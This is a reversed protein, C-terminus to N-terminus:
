ASLDYSRESWPGFEANNLSSSAAHDAPAVCSMAIRLLESQRTAGTKAFLARVHTRVTNLSLNLTASVEEVNMGNFLFKLVRLEAATAGFTSAFMEESLAEDVNRIFIAVAGVDSGNAALRGPLVWATISRENLRVLSVAVGHSSADDFNGHACDQIAKKLQRASKSDTARLKGMSVFLSQRARLLRQAALNAYILQADGETLIVSLRLLDLTFSLASNAGIQQRWGDEVPRVPNHVTSYRLTHYADPDIHAQDMMLM